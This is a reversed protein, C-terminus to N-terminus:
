LTDTNLQMRISGEEELLQLAGVGGHIKLGAGRWPDKAEVGGHIM